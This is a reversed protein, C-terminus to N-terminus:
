EIKDLIIFGWDNIYLYLNHNREITFSSVRSLMAAFKKSFDSDCCIKTCGPHTIEINRALILYSGNCSNVDLKLEYKGDKMFTIIPSYGEKKPYSISELSAFSTAEWKGYLGDGKLLEENKCAVILGAILIFALLRTM